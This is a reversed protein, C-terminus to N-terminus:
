EINRVHQSAETPITSKVSSTPVKEMEHYEQVAEECRKLCFPQVHGGRYRVEQAVFRFVENASRRELEDVWVFKRSCFPEMIVGYSGVLSSNNDVEPHLVFVWALTVNETTHDTWEM